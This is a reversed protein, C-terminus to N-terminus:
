SAAIDIVIRGFVANARIATFAENVEELRFRRGIVPTVQGRAVLDLSAAIESRNCYRTGMVATEGLLMAHADLRMEAGVSVGLIVVAGRPGVARAGAALTASTGVTDVYGTLRGDGADKLASEWDTNAADVLVDAHGGDWLARLKTPDREIGIAWGGFARIVALMHVGLGGGAGLVAVRDGAVIRLRDKAVHYPTAVADAVVGAVDLMVGDPVHVLNRAPLAIREAFAGDRATGIWGHFNRCLTDHGSACMDCDGCTLYFTATVRDGVRWGTVGPGVVAIRGAFEHGMIFPPIGGLVGHRAHELTLGAGCAVVDVLVEGHAPVPDAVDKIKLDEGFGPLVAARM